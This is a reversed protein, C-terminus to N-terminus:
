KFYRSTSTNLIKDAVMSTINDSSLALLKGILGAKKKDKIINLKKVDTHLMDAMVKKADYYTGIEDIFGYKLATSPSLIRGDLLDKYGEQLQKRGEEVIHIFDRHCENSLDQIFAREEESMDRFMNGIDKMKGSKITVMDIGLKDKAKSINPIMMIVGISGVMAMKTAIIKNAGCAILYAGSCGLNGISAVVPKHKAIYKVAQYIEESTGAAGGPSDLRLLCGSIKKDKAIAYLKDLLDIQSQTKEGFKGDQSAKIEGVITVLKVNIKKKKFLNM